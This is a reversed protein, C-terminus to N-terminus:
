DTLALDNISYIGTPRDKDLKWSKQKVVCCRDRNIDSVGFKLKANPIIRYIHREIGDITEPADDHACFILVSQKRTSSQRIVVLDERKLEKLHKKIKTLEENTIPESKLLSVRRLLSIANANIKERSLIQPIFRVIWVQKEKSAKLNSIIQDVPYKTLIPPRM